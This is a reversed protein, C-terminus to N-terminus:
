FFTGQQSKKVRKTAIMDEESDTEGDEVKQTM